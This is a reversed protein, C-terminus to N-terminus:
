KQANQQILAKIQPDTPSPTTLMTNIDKRQENSALALASLNSGFRSAAAIGRAFSEFGLPGLDTLLKVLLRRSQKLIRMAEAQVQLRMSQDVGPGDLSVLIIGVANDYCIDAYEAFKDSLDNNGSM